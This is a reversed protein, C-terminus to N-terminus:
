IYRLVIEFEFVAESSMVIVWYWDHKLFSFANIDPVDFSFFIKIKQAPVRCKVLTMTM